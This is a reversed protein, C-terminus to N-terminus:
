IDLQALPPAAFDPTILSSVESVYLAALQSFPVFERHTQTQIGVEPRVMEPCCKYGRMNAGGCDAAMHKCGDMEAQNMDASPLFCALQPIVIASIVLVLTLVRMALLYVHHPLRTNM